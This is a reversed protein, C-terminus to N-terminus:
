ELLPAIGGSFFGSQVVNRFASLSSASSNVRWDTEKNRDFWVIARVRPMLTSITQPISEIWAAKSGGQEASATEAIMMPKTTLGALESYSKSFLQSFSQWYSIGTGNNYGDLAVDDVWGDGPYYAQFPRSSSGHVNPSWVWRANTAGALRFISVVHRWMAIYAQPTNGDVGAGWSYWSGNMEPALRIFVPARYAATERAARLIYHDYRGSAIMSLSYAPQDTAKVDSQYPEWTVMPVAGRATAPVTFHPNLLATSWGEYWDQYWMAIKPTTGVMNSFEDLSPGTNSTIEETNVGLAIPTIAGARASATGFAAFSGLALLAILGRTVGRLVGLSFGRPVVLHGGRSHHISASESSGM